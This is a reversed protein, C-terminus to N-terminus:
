YELRTEDDSFITVPTVLCGTIKGKIILRRELLVPIPLMEPIHHLTCLSEAEFKFASDAM